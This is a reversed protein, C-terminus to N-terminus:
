SNKKIIVKAGEISIVEVKEGSEIIGEDSSRASWVQGGVSILGVGKSNDVTEKVTGKKGIVRDANTAVIKPTVHKKVLPRTIVLALVSVVIFIAVQLYVPAGCVAAILGAVAGIVFWISVLGVTVAELVGFVIIAAAWILYMTDFSKLMEMIDPM